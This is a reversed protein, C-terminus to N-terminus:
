EATPLIDINGDESIVIAVCPMPRARQAALDRLASNYRAGRGPEGIQPDAIGDLIVGFALCNADKDFFLAGDMASLSETDDATLRRPKM